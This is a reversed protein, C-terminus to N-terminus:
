LSSMLKHDIWEIPPYLYKMLEIKDSEEIDPSDNCNHGIWSGEFFGSSPVVTVFLEVNEEIAPLM